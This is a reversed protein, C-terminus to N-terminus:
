GVRTTFHGAVFLSGSHGLALQSVLGNVGPNWNAVVSGSSTGLKAVRSRAQGCVATFEGGVFVAGDVEDVALAVVRTGTVGANWASDWQGASTLRRATCAGANRALIRLHGATVDLEHLFLRAM